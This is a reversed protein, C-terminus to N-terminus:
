DPERLLSRILRAIDLQSPNEGIASRVASRIEAGSRGARAVVLPIRSDQATPSGHWSHYEGSFYFREGIPRESGTRALLLVDGARHGYPGSALGRLRMELQLLEPRPNAALYEGVPVLQEGDWVEFPLADEDTARPERALILDLTGRLAPVGAGTRNAQDFARVVPLVDQKLRPPRSWDCREGPSLCTSRDALYLYGFAGQYAVTAQYDQEDGSPELVFPRVRFGAQRLLAPPEDEGDTGLAHRDDALVPTHGHDAVLLVYTDDLAGQARYEALVESISADLVERLYRRQDGLPREAVHTYLDVGPFYVVQLAPIGHERLSGVLSEVATRDLEAYTKQSVKDRGVLGEATATVLDGLAAPAPTTLLDAGRHVHALSVHARVNAEEYVTPVQLTRGLLDDTYIELAHAHGTVSVPAPAYFKREERAFWENGPVGTRAPPEGTFLSSWAALTTSPLVSLVDPVAYAHQFMREEDVVSGLLAAIHPAQGEHIARLLQEEGIGDLAFVLVRPGAHVPRMPERLLKEGGEGLFETVEDPPTDSLTLYAAAGGLLLILVAVATLAFRANM